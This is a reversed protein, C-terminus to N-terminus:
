SLPVHTITGFLPIQVDISTLDAPPAAFVVSVWVVSNSEPVQGDAPTCACVGDSTTAPLYTRKNAGDILRLGDVSKPNRSGIEPNGDSLRGGLDVEGLESDSSIMVNVTATQGSRHVPYVAAHVPVRKVAGPRITFPQEATPTPTPTASPTRTPSLPESPVPEVPGTTDGADGPLPSTPAGPDRTPQVSM